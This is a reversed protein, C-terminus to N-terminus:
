PKGGAERQRALLLEIAVGIPVHVIQTQPDVWGYSGLYGEARAHEELGQAEVTFPRTNMANVVGLIQPTPPPPIWAVGLQESRCRGLFFAIGVGVATAVVAGILVGTVTRGPILDSEQPPHKV